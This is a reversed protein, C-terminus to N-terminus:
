SVAWFEGPKMNWEPHQGINETHSVFGGMELKIIM